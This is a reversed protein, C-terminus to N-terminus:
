IELEVRSIFIGVSTNHRIISQYRKLIVVCTGDYKEIIASHTEPSAIIQPHCYLVFIHVLEFCWINSKWKLLGFNSNNQQFSSSEISSRAENRSQSNKRPIYLYKLNNALKRIVIQANCMRM